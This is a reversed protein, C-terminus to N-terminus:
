FLNNFMIAAFKLVRQLNFTLRHPLQSIPNINLLGKIVQHRTAVVNLVQPGRDGLRDIQNFLFNNGHFQYIEGILRSLDAVAMYFIIM